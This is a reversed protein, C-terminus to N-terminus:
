KLQRIQHSLLPQNPLRLSKNQYLLHQEQGLNRAKTLFVRIDKRQVPLPLLFRRLGMKPLMMKLMQTEDVPVDELM